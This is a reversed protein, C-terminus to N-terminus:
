AAVAIVPDTSKKKGNIFRKVVDRMQHNNEIVPLYKTKPDRVSPSIKFFKLELQSTAITARRAKANTTLGRESFSYEETM